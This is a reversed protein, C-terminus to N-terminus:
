PEVQDMMVTIRVLLTNDLSEDVLSFTGYQHSVGRVVYTRGDYDLENSGEEQTYEGMRVTEGERPLTFDAGNVTELVEDDTRFHVATAIERDRPDEDLEGNGSM